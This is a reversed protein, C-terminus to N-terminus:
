IIVDLKKMLEAKREKLRKFEARDSANWDQHDAYSNSIAKMRVVVRDFEKQWVIKDAGDSRSSRRTENRIKWGQMASRWCKMVNKGVKWGNSAYYYFFEEADNPALGIKAAHLKVEEMSPKILLPTSAM